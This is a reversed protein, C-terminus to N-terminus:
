KRKTIPLKVAFKHSESETRESRSASMFKENEVCDKISKISKSILM